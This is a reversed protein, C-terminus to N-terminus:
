VEQSQAQRLRGEIRELVRHEDSLAEAISRGIADLVDRQERLPNVLQLDAPGIIQSALAAAYEGKADRAAARLIEGVRQQRAAPDDPPPPKPDGLLKAAVAGVGVALPILEPQAISVVAM